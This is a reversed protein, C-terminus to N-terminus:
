QLHLVQVELAEPVVVVMVGLEELVAVVAVLLLPIAIEVTAATM